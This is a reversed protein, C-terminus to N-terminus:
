VGLCDILHILHVNLLLHPLCLKDAAQLLLLFIKIGFRKQFM